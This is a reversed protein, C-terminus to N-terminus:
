RGIDNKFRINEMKKFEGCWENAFTFPHSLLPTGYTLEVEMHSVQVPEQTITKHYDDPDPASVNPVFPPYRHCEGESSEIDELNDTLCYCDWYKCNGCCCIDKKNSM